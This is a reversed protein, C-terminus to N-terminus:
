LSAHGGLRVDGCFFAHNNVCCNIGKLIAWNTDSFKYTTKCDVIRSVNAEETM